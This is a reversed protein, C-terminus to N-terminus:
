SIAGPRTGAGPGPPACCLLDLSVGPLLRYAAFVLGPVPPEKKHVDIRPTAVPLQNHLADLLAVEASLIDVGAQYRPFRALWEQNIVLVTNFQGRMWHVSDIQLDPM